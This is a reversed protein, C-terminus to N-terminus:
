GRLEQDRAVTAAVAEAVTALFANSELSLLGAVTTGGPSCVQDILDWPSSESSKVLAASGLVAQAAIRTAEPKPMGAAVAGRALADIFLFAFAPSSGAIATFASFQSEPITVVEGISEFATVVSAVDTKTAHENACVASMGQGIRSNVNPMVRAIRTHAGLLEALDALSLGAAISVVLPENAAIDDYIEASVEAFKQPKVALILLDSEAAVQANSDLARVGTRAAFAERRTATASSVVIDHPAVLGGDILGAIIASAMNGIGIFGVTAM